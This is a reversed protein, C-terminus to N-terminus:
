RTHRDDDDDGDGYLRSMGDLLSARNVSAAAAAFLPSGSPSASSAPIAFRLAQSSAAPAAFAGQADSHLATVASEATAHVPQLEHLLSQASWRATLFSHAVVFVSKSMVAGGVHELRQQMGKTVGKGLAIPPSHSDPASHSSNTAPRQHQQMESDSSGDSASASAHISRQSMSM